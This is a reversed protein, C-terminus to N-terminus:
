DHFRSKFLLRRRRLGLIIPWVGTGVLILTAPEPLPTIPSSSLRAGTFDYFGPIGSSDPVFQATVYWLQNPNGWVFETPNPSEPNRFLDIDASARYEVTLIGKPSISSVFSVADFSILGSVTSTFNSTAIFLNGLQTPNNCPTCNVLGGFYDDAASPIFIGYGGGHFVFTFGPIVFLPYVTGSGSTLKITDARSFMALALLMIILIPIRKM